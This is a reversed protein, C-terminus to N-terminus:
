IAFVIMRYKKPPINRKREIHRLIFLTDDRANAHRDGRFLVCYISRLDGGGPLNGRDSHERAIVFLILVENLIVYM